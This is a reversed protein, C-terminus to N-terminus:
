AGDARRYPESDLTLITYEAWSGCYVWTLTSRSLAAVLRFSSLVSSLDNPRDHYNAPFTIPPQWDMIEPFDDPIPVIGAEIRSGVKIPCKGPDIGIKPSLGQILMRPM